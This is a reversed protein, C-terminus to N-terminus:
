PLVQKNGNTKPLFDAVAINAVRARGPAPRLKSSARLAVGNKRLLPRARGKREDHRDAPLGNPLLDNQHRSGEPVGARLSAM